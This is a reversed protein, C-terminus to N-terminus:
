PSLTNEYIWDILERVAGDGGNYKSIWNAVKKVSEAANAPCAGIAAIKMIPIDVIDDGIYVVEKFEGRASRHFGKEECIEILKKKKDRVGQFCMTIGLEKCRNSVIESRRATIVVPKIDLKPLIDKIGCGDKVDFSKFIEGDNGIYLKGDTLTGDIDMVLLKIATYDIM